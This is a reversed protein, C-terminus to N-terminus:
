IICLSLSFLYVQTFYLQLLTFLTPDNLFLLFFYETELFLQVLNIGLDVM